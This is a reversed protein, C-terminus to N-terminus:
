KRALPLAQQFAVRGETVQFDVFGALHVKEGTELALILEDYFGAVLNRAEVKTLGITDALMAALQSRTLIM